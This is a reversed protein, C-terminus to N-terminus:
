CSLEALRSGLVKPQSLTNTLLIIITGGPSGNSHGYSRGERMESFLVEIWYNKDSSNVFNFASYVTRTPLASADFSLYFLIFFPMLYKFPHRM